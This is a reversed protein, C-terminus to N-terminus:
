DSVGLRLGVGLGLEQRIYRHVTTKVHVVRVCVM